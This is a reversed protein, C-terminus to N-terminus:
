SIRQNVGRRYFGTQSQVVPQVTHIEFEPLNTSEERAWFNESPSTLGELRRDLEYGPIEGSFLTNQAQIQYKVEM